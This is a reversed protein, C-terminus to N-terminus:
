LEMVCGSQVHGCFEKPMDIKDWKYKKLDLSYGKYPKGIKPSGIVLLKNDGYTAVWQSARVDAPVKAVAQWRDDQKISVDGSRRGTCSYMNGDPGAVCSGPSASTKLFEEAVPGWQSTALDFAEASREFCGQTSTPYGSIVHFKGRHFVAKCEDRERAMDALSTWKDEAVDYLLASRLANKDEDHGGAVLVTRDHDSACGFFSRKVGPMDSGKRWQGSLFSYVYVGSSARLTVPDWGGIVVIDSGVGVVGSFVPLGDPLDPIGPLEAWSGDVPDYVTLWYAPRTPHHKIGQGPNSNTDDGSKAQALVLVPRTVGASTRLRRFEPSRIESEWAKSVSIATPLHKYPIRIVCERGLDDILGPILPKM